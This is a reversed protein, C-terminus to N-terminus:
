YYNDGLWVSTRDWQQAEGWGRLLPQLLKLDEDAKRERGPPGACLTEMGAGRRRGRGERDPTESMKPGLQSPLNWACPKRGVRGAEGALFLLLFVFGRCRASCVGREGAPFSGGAPGSPWGGAASGLSASPEEGSGALFCRVDRLRGGAASGLPPLLKRSFPSWTTGLAILCGSSAAPVSTPLAQEGDRKGPKMQKSQILFAQAFGLGQKRGQKWEGRAPVSRVNASVLGPVQLRGSCGLPEDMLHPVGEQRVHKHPVREM